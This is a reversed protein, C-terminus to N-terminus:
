VWSERMTQVDKIFQGTDIQIFQLHPKVVSNLCYRFGITQFEFPIVLKTKLQHRNLTILSLQKVNTTRILLRGLLHFNGEITNCFLFLNM